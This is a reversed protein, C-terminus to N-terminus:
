ETRKAPVRQGWYEYERKLRLGLNGRWWDLVGNIMAIVARPRRALLYMIIQGPVIIGLYMLVSLPYVGVRHTQLFNLSNRTIYYAKLPSKYGATSSVKHWIRARHLAVVKFEAKKVKLCFDSEEFYFGYEDRFYGVRRALDTRVFLACGDVFDCEFDQMFAPGDQQWRGISHAFGHFSNLRYGLNQIRARDDFFMVKAGVVGYDPHQQMAEVMVSIIDPAVATDNGNVFVFECEDGLEKLGESVAKAFGLQPRYARVRVQPFEAKLMDSTGDTSDNDSVLVVHNPYDIKQWADLCVRLDEKHNHNVIVIGVRPQSGNSVARFTALAIRHAVAL